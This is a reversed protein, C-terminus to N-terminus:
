HGKTAQLEQDLSSAKHLKRLYLPMDAPATMVCTKNIFGYQQYTILVAERDCKSSVIKCCTDPGSARVRM